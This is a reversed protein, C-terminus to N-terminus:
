EEIPIGLAERYDWHIDEQDVFQFNKFQNTEVFDVFRHTVLIIGRLSGLYFIDQGRWSRERLVVRDIKNISMARCKDCGGVNGIVIGSAAEDLLTRTSVPTGM